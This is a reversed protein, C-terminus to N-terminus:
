GLEDRRADVRPPPQPTDWGGGLAQYLNLTASSPPLFKAALSSDCRKRAKRRLSAEPEVRQRIFRDAMRLFQVVDNPAKTTREELDPHRYAAEKVDM